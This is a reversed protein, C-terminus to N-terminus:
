AADGGPVDFRYSSLWPMELSWVARPPEGPNPSTYSALHMEFIEPSWIVLFSEPESSFIIEMRRRIRELRAADRFVPAPKVEVYVHRPVLLGPESLDVLFDPLYQGTEDAFAWPEYQWTLGAADFQAAAKAELRSRMHISRYVTPRAQM